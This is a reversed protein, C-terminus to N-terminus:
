GHLCLASRRRRIEFSSSVANRPPLSHTPVLALDVGSHSGDHRSSDGIFQLLFGLLIFYLGCLSFARDEKSGALLSTLRADQYVGNPGHRVFVWIVRFSDALFSGLHFPHYAHAMALAGLIGLLAWASNLLFATFKWGAITM